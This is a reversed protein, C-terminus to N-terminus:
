PRVIAALLAPKGGYCGCDVAEIERRQGLLGRCTTMEAARQWLCCTGILPPPAPM